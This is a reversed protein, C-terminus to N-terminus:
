IAYIERGQELITRYILGINDKHKELISPTAVVIDVPRGVQRLEQHLRQATRRCHEGDPVVVLVDVDSDPGLDGRAASGFLIIRLPHVARVIQRVLGDLIGDDAVM